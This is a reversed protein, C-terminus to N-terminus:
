NNCDESCSEYTSECDQLAQGYGAHSGSDCRGGFVGGSDICGQNQCENRDADCQKVCQQRAGEDPVVKQTCASLNGGLLFATVVLRSLRTM